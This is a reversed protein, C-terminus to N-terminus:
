KIKSIQHYLKFTKIQSQYQLIKIHLQFIQFYKNQLLIQNLCFYKKTALHIRISQKIKVEDQQQYKLNFAIPLRYYIQKLVFQSQFKLVAHINHFYIKKIVIILILHNIIM